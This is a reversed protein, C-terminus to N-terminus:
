FVVVDVDDADTSKLVVTVDVASTCARCGYIRAVSDIAVPVAPQGAITVDVDPNSAFGFAINSVALNRGAELRLHVTREEVATLRPLYAPYVPLSPPDIAAATLPTAAVVGISGLYREPERGLAKFMARSLGLLHQRGADNGGLRVGARACALRMDIAYGHLLYQALVGHASPAAQACLFQGSAAVGGAPMLLLPLTPQDDAVVNFLPFFNFPLEGRKQLRAGAQACIVFSAVAVAAALARVLRAATGTGLEVLGVAVIGALFVRLATTMYYPTMDRLLTTTLLTALAAAFLLAVRPRLPTRLAIAAGGGGALGLAAITAVAANVAWEPWHLMVAFWYRTGGIATAALLPLTTAPHGTHEGSGFYRAGARLDAFGHMADWAVYPLLPLVAVAAAILVDSASCRRARVAIVVLGAAIWVIGANAPHAHLALVFALAMGVLYRRRATRQFRAACLIFGLVCLSSFLYHLPLLWEFSSWSPVLLLLAWLMGAARSHLEKGALYALPFQLSALAGLLLLTGNWGQGIFLGLTLLWYWVPGLHITGALIPGSLPLGEGHLARWAIFVDRALDMHVGAYRMRVVGSLVLLTLALLRLSRAPAAGPRTM